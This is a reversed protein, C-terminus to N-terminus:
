LSFIPNLLLVRRLCILIPFILQTVRSNAHFADLAVSLHRLSEGYDSFSSFVMFVANADLYYGIPKESSLLGEQELGIFMIGLYDRQGEMGGPSAVRAM